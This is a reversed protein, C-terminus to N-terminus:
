PCCWLATKELKNILKSTTGGAMNFDKMLGHEGAMYAWLSQLMAAEQAESLISGPISLGWTSIETSGNVASGHEHLISEARRFIDGPDAGIGNSSTFLTISHQDQNASFIASMILRGTPM